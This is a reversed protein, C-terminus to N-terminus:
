GSPRTLPGCGSTDSASKQDVSTNSNGDTITWEDDDQQAIVQTQQGVTRFSIFHMWLNMFIPLIDWLYFTNIVLMECIFTTKNQDDVIWNIIIPIWGQLCLVVTRFLYCM